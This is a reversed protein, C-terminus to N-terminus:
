VPYDQFDMIFASTYIKSVMKFLVFQKSKLLVLSLGSHPFIECGPYIKSLTQLLYKQLYWSILLGPQLALLTQISLKLSNM